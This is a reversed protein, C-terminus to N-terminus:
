GPAVARENDGGAPMAVTNVTIIRAPRTVRAVKGAETPDSAWANWDAVLANANVM